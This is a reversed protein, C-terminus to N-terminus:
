DIPLDGPAKKVAVAYMIEFSLKGEFTSHGKRVYYVEKKGMEVRSGWVNM